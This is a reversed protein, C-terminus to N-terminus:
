KDTWDAPISVPGFDNCTWPMNQADRVIKFQRGTTDQWVLAGQYKFVVDVTRAEAAGDVRCGVLFDQTSVLALTAPTKAVRKVAKAAPRADATTSSAVLGCAVLAAAIAATITRKM